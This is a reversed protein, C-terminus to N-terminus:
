PRKEGYTKWAFLLALSVSFAVFLWEGFSTATVATGAFFGMCAPDGIERNAGLRM